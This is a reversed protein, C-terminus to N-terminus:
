PTVILSCIPIHLRRTLNITERKHVTHQQIEGRFGPARDPSRVHEADISRRQLWAIALFPFPLGSIEQHQGRSRAILQQRLRARELAVLQFYRLSIENRLSSVGDGYLKQSIEFPIDPGKRAAVMEGHSNAATHRRMGTRSQFRM